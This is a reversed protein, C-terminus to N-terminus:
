TDSKPTNWPQEQDGVSVVGDTPDNLSISQGDPFIVVTEDARRTVTLGKYKVTVPWPFPNKGSLAVCVPSHIDVGLVQLFLGLPAFGRVSNREGLGAGTEAQYADAFARQKKLNGIVASMMRVTLRAAEERMGYALLGEAIMQNWPLHVALCVAEAEQRNGGALRSGPPSSCLPVGFPRGFREAAFLTRNVLSVARPGPPIEAWLPLFLTHDEISYDMVQGTVQDSQGFGEASLGTLSAYVSSSTAAATGEGWQFDERRFQESQMGSGDRGKLVVVPKLPGKGKFSLRILIRVPPDFSQRLALKGPGRQRAVLAGKPSRHSDRDRYHYLVADSDWCEEALSRLAGAQLELPQRDEDLGLVDAMRALKSAERCLAAALAPSESAGIQAGQGGAWVVFAPSDESASQLPHDWEPFGDGDRDHGPALWQRFFASLHPYAEALLTRDNTRSYVRWALSALFPAALWRGRQGALGPRCDIAGDPQQVSLFNHLLGAALEPAGPVLGALYDAELPPQGNWLYSYDSGDRRPSFGQDPQRALVFSPCPLHASPGFFLSFAAKQSFAFAADWDPDGTQVEVTQSANVLEIRAREADWPRATTRRALEFSAEIDGLAAQAWTFQRVAGPAIVLDLALSPYPGPGPGPGGTLFVVPVLNESNGSLINASQMSRLALSQGGLPVLQACLEFLFSLPADGRNGFTFRGAICQSAPVWYEASVELGSFPSLEFSLYNPYFRRLRPPRTFAAPDSVAQGGFTFRPFIRMLRARLGYTTRVALAPPDGSGPEIEWIHDDLYDPACLRFDAALTLALPDGPGLSWDRM